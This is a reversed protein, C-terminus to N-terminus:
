RPWVGWWKDQKEYKAALLAATKSLNKSQDMMEQTQTDLQGLKEGREIAANRARAIESTAGGTQAGLRDMRASPLLAATGSTSKGSQQEGFLVDRDAPSLGSGTFLNTFFNKKPPEPMNCPLFLEGHMESLNNSLDAAMTIKTLESPSSMYIAQGLNGFTFLCQHFHKSVAGVDSLIRLTPLSFIIVHGNSLLCSVFLTTTPPSPSASPSPSVGSIPMRQNGLEARIVSSTETIKVRNYCNRSPFGIVQAHKESVVVMFHRDASDVSVQNSGSSSFAEECSNNTAGGGISGGQNLSAAHRPAPPTTATTAGLRRLAATSTSSLESSGFIADGSAAADPLRGVESGAGGEEPQPVLTLRPAFSGGTEWKASPPNCMEGHANGFGIHVVEGDFKFLSGLLSYNPTQPSRDESLDLTFGFVSGRSTGVWLSPENKRESMDVFALTKVGELVTQDISSQGSADSQRQSLSDGYKDQSKTRKLDSRTSVRSLATMRPPTGIVSESGGMSMLMEQTPKTPKPPSGIQVSQANLMEHSQNTPNSKSGNGSNSFRPSSKTRPRNPLDLAELEPVAACVLCIGQYYDVVVIGGDTGFAFLNTASTLAVASIPPPSPLFAVDVADEADTSAHPLSPSALRCILSPQYGPGWERVGSRVVVSVKCERDGHLQVSCASHPMSNVVPQPAVRRGSSSSLVSSTEDGVGLSPDVGQDEEYHLYVDLT